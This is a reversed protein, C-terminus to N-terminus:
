NISKTQFHATNMKPVCKLTKSRCETKRQQKEIAKNEKYNGGEDQKPAEDEHM